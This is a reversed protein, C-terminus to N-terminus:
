TQEESDTCEEHNIAGQITAWSIQEHCWMGKQKMPRKRGQSSHTENVAATDKSATLSQPSPSERRPKQPRLPVFPEEKGILKMMEHRSERILELSAKTRHFDASFTQARKSLRDLCEDWRKSITNNTSFIDLARLGVDKKLVSIQMDLRFMSGDVSSLQKHTAQLWRELGGGHGAVKELVNRPLTKAAKVEGANPDSTAQMDDAKRKKGSAPSVNSAPPSSKDIESRKRDIKQEVTVLMDVMAKLQPFGDVYTKPNVLSMKHPRKAAIDVAESLHTLIATNDKQSWGLDSNTGRATRLLRSLEAAFMTLYLGPGMAHKITRFTNAVRSARTLDKVLVKPTVGNRHAMTLDMGRERLVKVSVCTYAEGAVRGYVLYEEPYSHSSIGIALLAPVHYIENHKGRLSTDFVAIHADDGFGAFSLATQFNAAWSSFHSIVHSGSLHGVIESKIQAEPIKSISKDSPERHSGYFAHPTVASTTNLGSNGGSKSKWGRFLFAPTREKWGLQLTEKAHRRLWM